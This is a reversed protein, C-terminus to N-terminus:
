SDSNFKQNLLNIYPVKNEEPELINKSILHLTVVGVTKYSARKILILKKLVQYLIQCSLKTDYKRLLPKFIDILFHM